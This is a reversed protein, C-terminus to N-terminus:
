SSTGRDGERRFYIGERRVEGELERGGLTFEKRGGRVSIRWCGDVCREGERSLMRWGGNGSGPVRM